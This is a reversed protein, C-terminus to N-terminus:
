DDGSPGGERVQCLLEEADFVAACGGEQLEGAFGVDAKENSTTRQLAQRALPHGISALGFERAAVTTAHSESRTPPRVKPTPMVSLPPQALLFRTRMPPPLKRETTTSAKRAM